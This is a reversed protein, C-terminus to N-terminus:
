AVGVVVHQREAALEADAEHGVERECAPQEGPLVAAALARGRTGSERRALVHELVVHEVLHFREFRERLLPLVRQVLQRQRRERRRGTDRGHDDSGGRGVLNPRVHRSGLPLQRVLLEGLHRADLAAAQVRTPRCRTRLAAPLFVQRLGAAKPRRVAHSVAATAAYPHTAKSRPMLRPLRLRTGIAPSLSSNSSSPASSTRVYMALPLTSSVIPSFSRERSVFRSSSATASRNSTEALTTSRVNSSTTVIAPDCGNPCSADLVCTAKRSLFGVAALTFASSASSM